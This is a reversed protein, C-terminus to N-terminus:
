KLSRVVEDWSTVVDYDVDIAQYHARAAQIKMNATGRRSSEVTSDKTERVLYFTREDEFMVAWDPNYQGIPTDIRFWDPLKVYYKVREDTDLRNAFQLETGSDTPVGNWVTKNAGEGPTFLNGDDIPSPARSALERVQWTRGDELLEYQLGDMLSTNLRERIIGTTATIFAQPNVEFDAMRGSEALIRAITSRTLDTESQIMTIIDPLVQVTAASLADVYYPSNERVGAHTQQLWAIEVKISPPQIRAM